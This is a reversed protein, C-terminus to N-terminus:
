ININDDSDRSENGEDTDQLEDSGKIEEDYYDKFDDEHVAEDIKVDIKVMYAIDETEFPVAYFFDGNPKDIRVMSEAFGKPNALKVAEQLEATLNNFSAVIHKKRVTPRTM